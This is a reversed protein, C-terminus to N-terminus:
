NHNHKDDRVNESGKLITITATKFHNRCKRHKSKDSDEEEAGREGWRAVVEEAKEVLLSEPEM